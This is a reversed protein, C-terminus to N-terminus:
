TDLVFSHIYIKALIQELSEQIIPALILFCFNSANKSCCGKHCGTPAFSRVPPSFALLLLYKMHLNTFCQCVFCRDINVRARNWSSYFIVELSLKFSWTWSWASCYLMYAQQSTFFNVHIFEYAYIQISLGAHYLVLNMLIQNIKLIDNSLGFLEISYLEYFFDDYQHLFIQFRILLGLKDFTWHETLHWHCWSTM